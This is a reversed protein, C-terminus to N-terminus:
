QQPTIIRAFGFDILKTHGLSDVMVNDPKLDRYVINQSHLFALICVLEAAYFAV